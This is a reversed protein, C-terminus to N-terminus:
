WVRSLMEALLDQCEVLAAQRQELADAASMLAHELVSMQERKDTSDVCAKSFLIQRHVCDMSSHMPGAHPWLLQMHSSILIGKM